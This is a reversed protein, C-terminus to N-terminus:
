KKLLEETKSFPELKCISYDHVFYFGNKKNINNLKKYEEQTMEATLILTMGDREHKRFKIKENIMEYIMQKLDIYSQQEIEAYTVADGFTEYFKNMSFKYKIGVLYVNTGKRDRVM